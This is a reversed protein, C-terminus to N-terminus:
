KITQKQPLSKNKSTTKGFIHIIFCSLLYYCFMSFLLSISNIITNWVISLYVSSGSYIEPISLYGFIFGPHLIKYFTSGLYIITGDMVFGMVKQIIVNILIFLVLFIIFKPYTPRFFEKGGM